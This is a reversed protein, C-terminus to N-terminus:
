DEHRENGGAEEVYQVLKKIQVQRQDVISNSGMSSYYLLSKLQLVVIMGNDGNLKKFIYDWM